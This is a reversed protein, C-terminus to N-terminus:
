QSRGHEVQWTKMFLIIQGGKFRDLDAAVMQKEQVQERNNQSKLTKSEGKTRADM